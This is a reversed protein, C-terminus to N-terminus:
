GSGRKDSLMVYYYIRLLICSGCVFCKIYSDLPKYQQLQNMKWFLKGNRGFQCRVYTLGTM